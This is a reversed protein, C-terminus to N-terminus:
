ASCCMWQMVFFSLVIGGMIIVSAWFIALSRERDQEFTTPTVAEAVCTVAPASEGLDKLAAARASM